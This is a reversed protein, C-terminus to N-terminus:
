PRPTMEIGFANNAGAEVQNLAGRLWFLNQFAMLRRLARTDSEGWEGSAAAGTVQSLQQVKGATPGLLMDLTSRSAFRSLPKDAGVMRYMDVGGRTAKSALANGEEFWGTIGSRSIGEKVWDQPRESTAQGGLVSNIKYSMMGLSVAFILGELVRADRRQLNAILIRETASATFAKFQGLLSLVPQSMWLPKEQGPTVVAIDVERAVAGNLADAAQRDTWDAANPLRVGNTVEGGHEFASAIRGAMQTDIGSAALDRIQRATAKGKGVADAARLIESVAVHAAITKMADTQPSLLNAIFFRDTAAQLGREFRSQPRYVDFVDDLAHQRAATATEIGIGIARMQSKFKTWEPTPRVLNGFFPAWGDRFTSTLGHRFIAGAMDSLSSVAAMGMSTLNNLAKAGNAVRAMNRLDPSWGYVGRVRDRVAALDRIVADKEANLRKREKESTAADVLRAYDEEVRKLAETMRVDGFRETLLVDPVITRLHMAVVQEVDQELFDRVLADPIAFDRAALSGRPPETGAGRWGIEPGGTAIDYPLRGDPTGLVRGAIEQAKGRLADDDLDRDSEIIRKVARDIADDASELRPADPDRGSEVAHADRAKMASKADAVSKGEWAAIEAEIKGRLTAANEIERALAEELASIEASRGSARDALENGRRRIQTEFIAGGRANEIDGGRERLTEARQFAVRNLRTTEEQRAEVEDLAATRSEIQQRLKAAQEEAVRLAGSYATLREKAAQKTEQDSKLWRAITDVFEPRRAAVAEKNWVRHFYSEATRVGVGEPLLGAEIARAKWPDFVRQRIFQAAQAVEPVAHTDGEQLARAVETKFETFTMREPASGTLREFQARARPFWTEESGFRHQSFLRDLEDSVAVRTGSIKMRALRDLAPGQTTAVGEVNDRFTYPTEALDAMARRGAESQAALVRRTPSAQSILPVRDVGLASELELTRTDTAAAGAPQARLAHTDLAARDFDLASEIAVRESRTLLGAAGAGILASLLTASGVAFATEGPARTEQASQLITEAITAQAGGATGALLGSRVASYGGRAGRVIQGAPLAITPDILGAFIQAVTGAAGGADLTERDLEEQEIRAMISRTEAASQSDWFSERYLRDFKTGRIVDLPNHGPEAPFAERRMLSALAVVPNELRFAAALVDDGSPTPHPAPPESGLVDRPLDAADVPIMPM